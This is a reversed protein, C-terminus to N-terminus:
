GGRLARWLNRFYTKWCFRRRYGITPYFTEDGKIEAHASIPQRTLAPRGPDYDKLSAAIRKMAQEFEVGTLDLRIILKETEDM